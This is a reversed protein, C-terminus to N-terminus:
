GRATLIAFVRGRIRIARPCHPLYGAAIMANILITKRTPMRPGQTM